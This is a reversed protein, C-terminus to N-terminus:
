TNLEMPFVNIKWETDNQTLGLFHISLPPLIREIHCSILSKGMSFANIKLYAVMIQTPILGMEDYCKKKRDM